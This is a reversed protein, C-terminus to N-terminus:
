QKIKLYHLYIPMDNSPKQYTFRGSGQIGVVQTASLYSWHAYFVFVFRFIQYHAMAPSVLWQGIFSSGVIVVNKDKARSAINNAEKPTRLYLVDNTFTEVGPKDLKVPRSGTCITAQDYEITYDDYEGGRFVM